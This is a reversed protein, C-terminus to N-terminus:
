TKFFEKVLFSELGASDEPRASLNVVRGLRQSEWSFDGKYHTRILEIMRRVIALEIDGGLGADVEIVQKWNNVGGTKWGRFSFSAVRTSKSLIQFVGNTGQHGSAQQMSRKVNAEAVEQASMGRSNSNGTSNRADENEQAAAQESARRRERAANLMSMMDLPATVEPPKVDPAETALVATPSVKPTTHNLKQTKQPAPKSAAPKSMAVKAESLKDMMLVIPNNDGQPKGETHPPKFFWLLYILFLHALLVFSIGILNAPRFRLHLHIEGQESLEYIPTDNYLKM